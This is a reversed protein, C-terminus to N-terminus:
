RELRSGPRVHAAVDAIHIWVRLGDGDPAASVADDFDRASAPDVTFTAMATLDRRGAGEASARAAASHAEETIARGFGRRRDEDWLLAASVDRARTARGLPRRARAGGA